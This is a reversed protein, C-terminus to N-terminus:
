KMEVELEGAWPVEDRGQSSGRVGWEDKQKWQQGVAM